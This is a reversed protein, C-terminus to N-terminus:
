NCSQHFRPEGSSCHSQGHSGSAALQRAVSRWSIFMSSMLDHSKGDNRKIVPFCAPVHPMWGILLLHERRNDKISSSLYLSWWFDQYTLNNTLLKLKHQLFFYVFRSPVWSYLLRKVSFSNAFHSWGLTSTRKVWAPSMSRQSSVSFCHVACIFCQKTWHIQHTIYM